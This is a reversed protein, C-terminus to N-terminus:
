AEERGLLEKLITAAERAKASHKLTHSSPVQVMANMDM